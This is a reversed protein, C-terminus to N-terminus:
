VIPLEIYSEGFFVTNHATKTDEAFAFHGKVNPHPMYQGGNSSIDIRLKIGEDATFAIPPTELNLAVVDGTKYDGYFHSVAAITETLNYSAGREVFSLRIYFATDECDSSVKLVIKIKGFYSRKKDCPESEFSLVNAYTADSMAFINGSKFRNETKEPDYLFTSSGVKPKSVSLKSEKSIYLREYEGEAVPYESNYWEGARISYYTVRGLAAYKYSNGSRISNFWEVIYDSPLKANEFTYEADKSVDTAHAYPGVLMASRAKTEDPLREWMDFMGDVYFDYWGETFLVPIQLSNMVNERSNDTWFADPINHLLTETFEPFDRGFSREAAKIYPRAFAKSCDFETFKRDSMRAWWDINNLNYNCGNRYNRYYMRDTQIQLAAGKVDYPTDGLYSMHVSALYSGGTVYIEGNYYPLSRLFGLTALGDERETKYPVCVGESDGRGRTHQLVVAYGNKIFLDNKYASVDHRKGNHSPEYPTRIFVIPCKDAEIPTACRTYLRVGDPMEVLRETVRVKENETIIPYM